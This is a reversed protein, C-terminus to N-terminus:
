HSAQVFSGRVVMNVGDSMATVAWLSERDGLPDCGVAVLDIRPDLGRESRGSRRVVGVPDRVSMSNTGLQSM